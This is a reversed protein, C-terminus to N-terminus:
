LALFTIGCCALMTNFTHSLLVFVYITIFHMLFSLSWRMWLTENTPDLSRPADNEELFFDSLSGDINTNWKHFQEKMENFQTEQTNFMHNIELFQEDQDKFRQTMFARLDTISELVQSLDVGQPEFGQQTGVDEPDYDPDSDEEAEEMNADGELDNNLSARIADVEEITSNASDAIDDYFWFNGNDYFWNKRGDQYYHMKNLVGIHLGSRRNPKTLLTDDSQVSNSSLVCGLFSPYPLGKSNDLKYSVM